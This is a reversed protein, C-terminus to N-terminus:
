NVENILLEEVESLQKLHIYSPDANSWLQKVQDILEKAQKVKNQKILVKSKLLMVQGNLPNRKLVVELSDTVGGYQGMEYLTLAKQYLLDDLVLLSNLTVFSQKSEAIAQNHFEIAAEYDGASRAKKAKSAIIFQNYIVMQSQKIFAEFKALAEVSKDHEGSEEYIDMEIMYLIQDFPPKTKSRLQQMVEWAAERDDLYVLHVAKKSDYMLAQSLPDMYSQSYENMQDVVGMAEKLRGSLILFNEKETLVKVRDSDNEAKLVLRDMDAIAEDVFGKLGKIKALGLEANINNFNLLSAEEYNIKAADLEGFQMYTTAMEILPLTKDQSSEYYIQLAALARDKDDKLRYIRATNVLATANSQQIESLKEYVKLADDLRNGIIMYNGGLAQLADASEPSLKVWNELVKIAKDLESNIAYYNVQVKLVAEPSLKYELKLANEAAEKALDFDGLGRYYSLMLVYAVALKDDAELAKKLWAVGEAYDNDIFVSNLSNIVSEIAFLNTSLQESLAREPIINPTIKARKLIVATLQEAVDDLAYLWDDYSASISTVVAGTLVDYLSAEFTLANNQKRIEGKILWQSNSDNAIDLSLSLPENIGRDFGKSILTRMVAPSEYPTRISIIPNRMMDTAVMWMAGYSLWDLSEDGTKNEWFFGQVKQSMGSKAVEYNVLKGTQVDTLSLIETAPKKAVPHIFTNVAFWAILVNFPIFIIQKQTWKDKGPRGHGWALLAVLPLFSIMIVFVYSSFQSPVDFRESMWEGMEVALWVAAVYMGLIQPIRREALEALLSKKHTM